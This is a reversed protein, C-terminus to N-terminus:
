GGDAATDAAVRGVGHINHVWDSLAIAKPNRIGVAWKRNWSEAQTDPGAIDPPGQGTSRTMLERIWRPVAFANKGVAPTKPLVGVLVPSDLSAISPLAHPTPASRQLVGVVRGGTSVAVRGATNRQGEWFGQMRMGKRPGGRAERSARTGTGRLVPSASLATSSRHRPSARYPM